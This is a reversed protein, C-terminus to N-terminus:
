AGPTSSKLREDLYRASSNLRWLAGRAMGERMYASDAAPVLVNHFWGAAHQSDITIHLKHYTIGVEPLGLREWAGVVQVFRDPAFWETMGLFGVAQPYYQRYRCLLVALNGSLLAEASLANDLEEQTIDFVEYIKNFLHTHVEEANGNGMEDWYNGAIELKAPGDTGVQMLALLDDFRGDVVSEQIVYTRLDDASAQHRIFDLYYPHKYAAHSKAQEKLWTLFSKPATPASAILGPDVHRDEAAITAVELMRTVEHVVVSGEATLAEPLRTLLNYVRALLLQQAYFADRDGAAARTNLVEVAETLERRPTGALSRDVLDAPHDLWPCFGDVLAM